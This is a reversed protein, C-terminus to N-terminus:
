VKKKYFEELNKNEDELINSTEEKLKVLLKSRVVSDDKDARVTSIIVDILKEPLNLTRENHSSAVNIMFEDFLKRDLLDLRNKRYELRAKKADMVAKEAQGKHKKYEFEQLQKIKKKDLPSLKNNVSPNSKTKKSPKNKKAAKKNAVNLLEKKVDELSILGVKGVKNVPIRNTSKWLSLTKQTTKIGEAKLLNVIKYATLWTKIKQEM